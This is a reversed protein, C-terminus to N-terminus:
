FEKAGLVKLVAQDRKETRRDPLHSATRGEREVHKKLEPCFLRVDHYIVQFLSFNVM